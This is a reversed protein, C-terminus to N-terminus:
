FFLIFLIFCRFMHYLFFAFILLLSLPRLLFDLLVMHVHTKQYTEKEQNKERTKKRNQHAQLFFMQARWNEVREENWCVGVFNIERGNEKM